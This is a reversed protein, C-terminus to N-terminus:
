RSECGQLMEQLTTREQANVTLNWKHKIWIWRRAYECRYDTNPPLWAEPGKDGKTQNAADDVSLLVGPDNAYAERRSQDWDNAGSRWANALPVIHDIDVDGSDTLTSGTYPDLWRGATFSCDEDVEVGRGDRLLADDRVDCSGDPEEWGFRTGDAAWHPFEERSYGVMSGVPAVDIGRLMARSRSPTPPPPAGSATSPGSGSRTEGSSGSGQGLLERFLQEPAIVGTYLGYGVVLVV